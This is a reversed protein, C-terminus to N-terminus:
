GFLDFSNCSDVFNDIDIFMFDRNLKWQLKQASRRGHIREVHMFDVM